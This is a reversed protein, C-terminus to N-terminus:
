YLKRDMSIAVLQIRRYTISKILWILQCILIFSRQSLYRTYLHAEFLNETNRACGSWYYTQIINVYDFM